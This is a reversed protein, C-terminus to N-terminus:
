WFITPTLVGISSVGISFLPIELLTEQPLFIERYPFLLIECNKPGLFSFPGTLPRARTPAGADLPILAYFLKKAKQLLPFPSNVM